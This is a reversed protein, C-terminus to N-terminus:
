SSDWLSWFSTWCFLFSCIRWGVRWLRPPLSYFTELLGCMCLDGYLQLKLPQPVKDALSGSSQVLITKYPNTSPVRELHFDLSLHIFNIRLSVFCELFSALFLDLGIFFLSGFLTVKVSNWSDGESLDRVLKSEM